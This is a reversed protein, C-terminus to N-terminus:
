ALWQGMTKVQDIEVEEWVRQRVPKVFLIGLRRRYPACVWQPSSLFFPGGMSM